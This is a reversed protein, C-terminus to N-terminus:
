LYVGQRAPNFHRAAQQQHQQQQQGHIHRKGEVLMFQHPYRGYKDSDQNSTCSIRIDKLLWLSSLLKRCESRFARGTLCYLVFTV